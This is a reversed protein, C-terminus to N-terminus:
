LACVERNLVMKFIPIEFIIANMAFDPKRRGYHLATRVSPDINDPGSSASSFHLPWNRYDPAQRDEPECQHLQILLARM